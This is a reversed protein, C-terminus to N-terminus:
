LAGIIRRAMELDAPYNVNFFPLAENQTYVIDERREAPIVRSLKHVGDTLADEFFPLCAYEYVAVLSEIFGTEEQRFTTMLAEPHRAVRRELLRELLTREMFPLDCSLVLVPGQAARLATMVGGFPGLGQVEDYIRLYPGTVCRGPRCSIWVEDVLPELLAATRVLLDPGQEGHLRIVAKDHGLRTSLGGALVVGTIGVERSDPIADDTADADDATVHLADRV